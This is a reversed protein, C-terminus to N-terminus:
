CRSPEVEQPDEVAPGGALGLSWVPEYLTAWLVHLLTQRHCGGDHLSSFHEHYFAGQFRTGRNSSNVRKPGTRLAWLHRTLPSMDRTAPSHTITKLM